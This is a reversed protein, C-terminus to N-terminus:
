GEQRSRSPPSALAVRQAADLDNPNWCASVSVPSPNALVNDPPLPLSVILPPSPSSVMEPPLLASTSSQPLPMSVSFAPPVSPWWVILRAVLVILPPSEVPSVMAMELVHQRAFAVVRDGTSRQWRALPLAAVIGDRRHRRLCSSRNCRASVKTNVATLCCSAARSTIESKVCACSSLILRCAISAIEPPDSLLKTSVPHRCRRKLYLQRVASRRLSRFCPRQLHHRHCRRLRSGSGGSPLM